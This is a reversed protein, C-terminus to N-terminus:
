GPSTGAPPFPGPPAPERISDVLGDGLWIYILGCAVFLLIAALFPWAPRRPRRSSTHRIRQQLESEFFWPAAVHEARRLAEAPQQRTGENRGETPEPSM